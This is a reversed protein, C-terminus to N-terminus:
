LLLPLRSDMRLSAQDMVYATFALAATALRARRNLM